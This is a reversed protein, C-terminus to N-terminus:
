EAISNKPGITKLGAHKTPNYHSSFRNISKISATYEQKCHECKTCTNGSFFYAAAVIDVLKTGSRKCDYCQWQADFHSVGFWNENKLKRRQLHYPDSDAEFLALINYFIEKIKTSMTQPRFPRHKRFLCASLHLNNTMLCIHVPNLIIGDIDNYNYYKEFYNISHLM